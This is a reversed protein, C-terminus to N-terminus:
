DEYGASDHANGDDYGASVREDAGEFGEVELV